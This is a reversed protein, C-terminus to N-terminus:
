CGLLEQLYDLLEAVRSVGTLGSVAGSLVAVNGAFRDGAAAAAATVAASLQASMVDGAAPVAAAEADAAVRQMEELVRSVLPRLPAVVHRQVARLVARRPNTVATGSSGTAAYRLAMFRLVSLAAVTADANDLVAGVAAPGHTTESAPASPVDTGAGAATLASTLAGAQRQLAHLSHVVPRLVWPGGFAVVMAAGMATAAGPLGQAGSRPAEGQAAPGPSAAAAAATAQAAAASAAAVERQLRQLVISRVTPTSGLATACHSLVAARVPPLLLSLLAQWADHCYRRLAESGACDMCLLLRQAARRALPLLARQVETTLPPLAAPATEVEEAHGSGVNGVGAAGDGCKLAVVVATWGETAGEAGLRGALVEWRNRVDASAAAATIHTLGPAPLHWQQRQFRLRLAAANIMALARTLPETHGSSGGNCGDDAGGGDGDDRSGGLSMDLHAEIFRLLYLAAAESDAPPACPLFGKPLRAACGAASAAAAHLHSLTASNGGSSSGGGSTSCGGCVDLWAVVAAGLRALAPDSLTWEEPEDFGEDWGNDDDQDRGEAAPPRPLPAGALAAAWLGEWSVGLAGSDCHGVAHSGEDPGTGDADPPTVPNWVPPAPLYYPLLAALRAAAVEVAPGLGPGAAPAAAARASGAGGSPLASSHPAGIPAWAPWLAGLLALLWAGVKSRDSRDGSAAAAGSAPTTTVSARSPLEAALVRSHLQEAFDAFPEVLAAAAAAAQERLVAAVEGGGAMGSAEAGGVDDGASATAAATAAATLDTLRLLQRGAGTALDVVAQLVSFAVKLRRRQVAAVLAPLAGRLLGLLLLHVSGSGPAFAFDKHSDCLEMLAM